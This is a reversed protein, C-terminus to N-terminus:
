GEGEGKKRTTPLQVLEHIKRGRPHRLYRKTTSRDWHGLALQADFQEEELDTARKARIDHPRFPESILGDALCADILRRWYKAWNHRTWPRGRTNRILHRDAQSLTTTRATRGPIRGIQQDLHWGIVSETAPGIQLRGKDAGKDVVLIEGAGRDIDRLRISLLASTRVGFLYSLALFMQQSVGARQFVQIYEWDEVYRTRAQEANPSVGTCPNFGTYGRGIAYSYLKQLLARERNAAVPYPHVELYNGVDVPRVDELRCDGFVRALRGSPRLQRLYEDRTRGALRLPNRPDELRRRFAAMLAALTELGPDVLERELDDYRRLTTPPIPDGDPGLPRWKGRYVHYLHPGKPHVRPPYKPDRQSRM